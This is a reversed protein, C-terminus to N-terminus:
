NVPPEVAWYASMNDTAVDQGPLWYAPASPDEGPAPANQIATVWLQRRGTGKTGAYANGYDRTSYFALWFYGGEDFPSFNPLYSNAAGPGGNARVLEVANTGDRAILWLSGPHPTGDRMGRSHTGRGFAIWQSDPSFTPWANAMGDAARLVVPAGFSDPGTVPIVALDGLTFDVPWAGDHNAIFAIATGDPSWTPHAAGAAPLGAGMAPVVTGTAADILELRNEFNILLRTADPNFTSFLARYRDPPVITPAPDATLDVSLDFIAGFENGGWLEAAMKSGDRSVTHCAVCRNAPDDPKPPPYPIFDERGASTIRLIQGDSLDWYYIAGAVNAQVVSISRTASPYVQGDAANWRDVRFTVPDGGASAKLVAWSSAAVTWDYRFPPGDHALYATARALGAEVVVRYLDGQNGGEWQVDVPALTSPVVAGDLPYLLAPAEASGPPQPATDFRDAADAPVGTGAHVDDVRVTVTTQATLGRASATVTGAGAVTGSAVFKGTAAALDGLQPPALSWTADDAIETTGDSLEVTAVFAVADAAGNAVVVTPDAPSISLAVPSPAAADPDTGSGGSGGGCAAALLIGVALRAGTM